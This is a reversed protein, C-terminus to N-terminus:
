ASHLAELTVEDLRLIVQRVTLEVAYDSSFLPPDRLTPRPCSLQRTPDSDNSSHRMNAHCTVHHSKPRYM